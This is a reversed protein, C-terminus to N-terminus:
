QPTLPASQAHEQNSETADGAGGRAQTDQPIISSMRMGSAKLEDSLQALATQVKRANQQANDALPKVSQIGGATLDTSLATRIDRLYSILPEMVAQNERYRQDVTNFDNSVQTKRSVSQERVADFKMDATRKDWTAFYAASKKHAVEAAKQARDSAAILRNLSANFREFQPKLDPAPKNVLDDLAVLTLDITYSEAQIQRGAKQLSVSAADATKYNTSACGCAAVLLAACVSFHVVRLPTYRDNTEKTPMSCSNASFYVLSCPTINEEGRPGGASAGGFGQRLRTGSALRENSRGV